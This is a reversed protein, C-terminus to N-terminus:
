RFPLLWRFQQRKGNANRAIPGCRGRDRGPNQPSIAFGGLPRWNKPQVASPRHPLRRPAAPLAACCSPRHPLRPMAAPRAYCCVPCLLRPMAPPAQKLESRHVGFADPGRWLVCLAHHLAMSKPIPLGGVRMLHRLAMSKPIPLGGVRMLCLWTPSELANHKIVWQRRHARFCHDIRKQPELRTFGMASGAGVGSLLDLLSGLILIWLSLKIFCACASSTCGNHWHCLFPGNCCM